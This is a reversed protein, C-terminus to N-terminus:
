NKDNNEILQKVNNAYDKGYEEEILNISDEFSLTFQHYPKGENEITKIIKNVRRTIEIREEQVLAEIVDYKSMNYHTIDDVISSFFCYMGNPQKIIQKAM